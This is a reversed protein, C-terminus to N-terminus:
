FVATTGNRDTIELIDIAWDHEYFKNLRNLETINLYRNDLNFAFKFTIHESLTIYEATIIHVDPAVETSGILRFSIEHDINPSIWFRYERRFARCIRDKLAYQM